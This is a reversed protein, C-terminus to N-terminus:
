SFRAGMRLQQNLFESMKSHCLNGWTMKTRRLKSLLKERTTEYSCNSLDLLGLREGIRKQLGSLDPNSSVTVWIVIDFNTNSQLQNNVEKALTTKGAGGMGYVGIIGIQDDHICDLVEQLAKRAIPQGPIPTTEFQVAREPPPSISLPGIEM